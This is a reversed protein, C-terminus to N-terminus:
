NFKLGRLKKISAHEGEFLTMRRYDPHSGYGCYVFGEPWGIIRNFFAHRDRDSLKALAEDFEEFTEKSCLEIINEKDRDTLYEPTGWATKRCQKEYCYFESFPKTKM